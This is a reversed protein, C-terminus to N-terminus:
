RSEPSIFTYQVIYFNSKNRSIWPCVTSAISGRLNYSMNFIYKCEYFEYFRGLDFRFLSEGVLESDMFVLNFALAVRRDLQM